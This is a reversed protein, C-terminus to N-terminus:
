KGTNELLDNLGNHLCLMIMPLNLVAYSDTSSIFLFASNM